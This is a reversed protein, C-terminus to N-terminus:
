GVPVPVAQRNVKAAPTENISATAPYISSGSASPKLARGRANNYVDPGFPRLGDMGAFGLHGRGDLGGNHM